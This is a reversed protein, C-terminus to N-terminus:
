QQLQFIVVQEGIHPKLYEWYNYGSQQDNVASKAATSALWFCVITEPNQTM